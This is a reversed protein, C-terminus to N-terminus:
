GTIVSIQKFCDVDYFFMNFHYLNIYIYRKCVDLLLCQVIVVELINFRGMVERNNQIKVLGWELIQNIEIERQCGQSRGNM